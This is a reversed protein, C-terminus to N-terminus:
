LPASARQNATASPESAFARGPKSFGHQQRVECGYPNRRQECRQQQDKRKLPIVDVPRSAACRTCFSSAGWLPVFEFRREALQDYGPATQHCPSCIAASGKRPRVAVEISKKDPSFRAEYYIFGRFRYYRNLITILEMARFRAAAFTEVGYVAGVSPEMGDRCGTATARQSLM